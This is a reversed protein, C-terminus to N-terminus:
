PPPLSADVWSPFGRDRPELLTWCWRRFDDFVEEAGRELGSILGDPQWPALPGNLLLLALPEVLAGLDAAHSCGGAMPRVGGRRGGGVKRAAEEVGLGFPHFCVATEYRQQHAPGESSSWGSPSERFYGTMRRNVGESPSAQQGRLKTTTLTVATDFPILFPQEFFIPGL